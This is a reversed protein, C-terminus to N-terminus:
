SGESDVRKEEAGKWVGGAEGLWKNRVGKRCEVERTHHLYQVNTHLVSCPFQELPIFFSQGANIVQNQENNGHVLM